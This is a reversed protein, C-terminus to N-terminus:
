RKGMSRVTILVLVHTLNNDMFDAQPIAQLHLFLDDGEFLFDLPRVSEDCGTNVDDLKSGKDMRFFDRLHSVCVIKKLV